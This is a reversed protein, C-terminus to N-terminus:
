SRRTGHAMTGVPEAVGLDHPRARFSAHAAPPESLARIRYDLKGCLDPALDLAYRMTGDAHARDTPLWRFASCASTARRGAGGELVMEVVVDERRLGDLKVAAEIRVKEGFAIRQAARASGACVVGAAVRRARAGEMAGGRDGDRVTPEQYLAGAGRPRCTSSPRRVRGGHARRQLAAAAHGDLAQGDAGLRAFTLGERAYYLPMVHDQLIEYLTRAEERDRRAQDM